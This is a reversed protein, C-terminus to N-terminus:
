PWRAKVCAKACAATLQREAIFYLNKSYPQIEAIKTKAITNEVLNKLQLWCSTCIIKASRSNM